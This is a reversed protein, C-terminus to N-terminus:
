GAPAGVPAAPAPPAPPQPASVPVPAPAPPPILLKDQDSTQRQAQTQTGDAWFYKVVYGFTKSAGQQGKVYWTQVDQATASFVFTETLSTGSGDDYDLDVEAATLTDGFHLLLPLVPLTM